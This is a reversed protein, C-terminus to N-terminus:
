GNTHGDTDIETKRESAQHEATTLLQSAIRTYHHEPGYLRERDALVQAHLEIARPLDGALQYAYALNSRATITESHDPGFVRAYDTASQQHLEIARPLDGPIRCLGSILSHGASDYCRIVHGAHRRAAPLARVSRHFNEREGDGAVLSERGGIVDKGM